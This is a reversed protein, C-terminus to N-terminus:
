GPSMTPPPAPSRLEIWVARARACLQGNDDFLATAVEHKRGNRALEVAVIVCPEDIHVCRDIHVLYEGLLMPLATSCAAFYGPCDLAASMFEPRVKGAGDSLSADPIWPAAMRDQSGLSGAFIRLGDGRGRDPGCVFCAPYAHRTFGVFQRSAELAELYSVSEPVDLEFSAPKARILTRGAARLELTDGETDHLELPTNLPIPQELRVRLQQASHQAVLGAIYGGNACGPPGCYRQDVRLEAAMMLAAAAAARRAM